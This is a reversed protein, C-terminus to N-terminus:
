TGVFGDEDVLERFMLGLRRELLGLTLDLFDGEM